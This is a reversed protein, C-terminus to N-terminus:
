IKEYYGERIRKITRESKEFLVKEIEKKNKEIFKNLNFENGINELIDEIEKNQLQLFLFTIDVIEEVLHEKTQALCYRSDGKHEIEHKCLKYKNHAIKFELDEEIFKISQEKFGFHKITEKANEIVIKM